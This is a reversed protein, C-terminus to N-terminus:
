NQLKENYKTLKGDAFKKGEEKKSVLFSTLWSFVDSTLKLETSIVTKIFPVLGKEGGNKKSEEDFTQFVYDKSQNALSVPAFSLAKEKLTSTEEKVIPFRSDVETLGKDGLSDAKDVYPAIYSYPGKLYGEFPVVLKNYTDQAFSLSKAGYPNNLYLSISDSVLPYSTLHQIKTLM